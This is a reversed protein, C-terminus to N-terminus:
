GIENVKRLVRTLKAAPAACMVGEGPGTPLAVRLSGAERKKDYRLANRAVAPDAAVSRALGLADMLAEVRRRLERPTVGLSEGVALEARMGAAVCDGHLARYSAGVELAHGVTHGFNLLGRVGAEREDQAVVDIKARVARRVMEEVVGGPQLREGDPRGCLLSANAELWDLLSADCVAAIKVVEALAARFHRTPLTDLVLPDIWVLSPQHFAGVLNKGIPLDVGTKGGVAADVMALLSTPVSVYRVGRLWTAAAFGGVDTVVGGGVCAFVHGRDAGCRAASEWVRAVSRLTKSREGPPLVVVRVSGPLVGAVAAGWRRFVNADTVMVAPRVPERRLGHMSEVHVRYSQEGLPMVLPLPRSAVETVRAVVSGVDGSADVTAHAEAYAAQRGVLLTELSSEKLLPRAVGAAIRERLVGIPARLTVVRAARLTEHRLARDVLAGGGAAIMVREGDLAARLARAERVRFGAEGARSFIEAVTMGAAREVEADLDVFRWGLLRAVEEGVTSKGAGPPGSLVCRSAAGDAVPSSSM